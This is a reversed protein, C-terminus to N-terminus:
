PIDQKRNQFAKQRELIGVIENWRQEYVSDFLERLRPDLLIEAFIFFSRFAPSSQEQPVIWHGFLLYEWKNGTDYPSLYADAARSGQDDDIFHITEHVLLAARAFVLARCIRGEPDVSRYRQAPYCPSSPDAVHLLWREKLVIRGKERDYYGQAMLSSLLADDFAIVPPTGAASIGELYSLESAESGFRDRLYRRTLPDLLLSRAAITLEQLHEQLVAPDGALGSVEFSWNGDPDLRKYPNYGLAQYLNSSDVYGLPDRQIFNVLEPDYWRARYHYMGLDSDWMRGQFYTTVGFASAARPEVEGGDEAVLIAEEDGLVTFSWPGATVTRAPESLDTIGTLSVSVGAGLQWAEDSASWHLVEGSLRSVTGSLPQGDRNVTVAGQLDAVTVPVTAVVTVGAQSELVAQV